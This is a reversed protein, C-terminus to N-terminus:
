GGAVIRVIELVDSNELVATSAEAKNLAECNREVVVHDLKLSKSLLFEALTCNEPITLSEGNVIIHISDSNM